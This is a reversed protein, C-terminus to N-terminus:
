GCISGSSRFTDNTGNKEYVKSRRTSLEELKTFGDPTINSYASNSLTAHDRHEDAVKGAKNYVPEPEPKLSIIGGRSHHSSIHPSQHHSQHHLEIRRKLKKKERKPSELIYLGM